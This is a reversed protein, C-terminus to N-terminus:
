LSRCMVVLPFTTIQMDNASGSPENFQVLIPYCDNNNHVTPLVGVYTGLPLQNQGPNPGPNLWASVGGLGDPIFLIEQVLPSSSGTVDVASAFTHTTLTPGGINGIMFWLTLNGSSDIQFAVCPDNYGTTAPTWALTTPFNPGQIGYAGIVGTGTTPTFVFGFRFSIWLPVAWYVSHYNGLGSPSGGINKPWQWGAYSGPTTGTLTAIAAVSNGAISGSGAVYQIGQDFTLVSRHQGFTWTPLWPSGGTPVQVLGGPIVPKFAM